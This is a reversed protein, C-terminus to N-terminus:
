ASAGVARRVATGWAVVEVQMAGHKGRMQSINSFGFRVDWVEQAGFARAEELLRVLAERRARNMLRQAAHMEGGALNRLATALSKFYDTAIVVQGMVMRATEASAPDRVQRLNNVEISALEAERRELRRLHARENLGGAVIGLALLGLPIALYLFVALEPEGGDM